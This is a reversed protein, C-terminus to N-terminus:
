GLMLIDIYLVSYHLYLYIGRTPIFWGYKIKTTRLYEHM